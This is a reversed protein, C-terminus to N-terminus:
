FDELSLQNEDDDQQKLEKEVGETDEPMYSGITSQDGKLIDLIVDVNGAHAGEVFKKVYEITKEYGGEGNTKRTAYILDYYYSGVNADVRSTVQVPRGQQALQDLYLNKLFERQGNDPIDTTSLDRGYFRNAKETDVNRGIAQSIPLNILLDGHPKPTMSEIASWEVDMGQNDIFSLYNFGRSPNSAKWIEKIVGPIEENADGRIVEWEDPETFRDNSSSFAYDLRYELADAYEDNHEIFFMKSFPAQAAKAAVLPSGLFCDEEGYRSVGSGALADIYYLDEYYDVDSLVTTYMYVTASQLILKLASWSDFDNTQDPALNMIDDSGETLGEVRNQIYNRVRNSM